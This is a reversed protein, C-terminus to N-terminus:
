FAGKESGDLKSVRVFWDDGDWCGYISTPITIIPLFPGVLLPSMSRSVLLWRMFVKQASDRYV